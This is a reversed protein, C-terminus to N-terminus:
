EMWSYVEKTKVVLDFYVTALMLLLGFSDFNGLVSPNPAMFQPGQLGQLQQSTLKKRGLQLYLYVRVSILATPRIGVTASVAQVAPM